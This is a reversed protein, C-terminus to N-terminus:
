CSSFFCLNLYMCVLGWLFILGALIWALFPKQAMRPFSFTPLVEFPLFAIWLFNFPALIQHDTNTKGHGASVISVPVKNELGQQTRGTGVGAWLSQLEGQHYDEEPGSRRRIRYASLSSATLEESDKQNNKAWFRGVQWLPVNPSLDM